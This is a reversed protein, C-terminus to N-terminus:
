IGRIDKKRRGESQERNWTLRGQEKSEREVLM